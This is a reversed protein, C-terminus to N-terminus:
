EPEERKGARSLAAGADEFDPSRAHSGPSSVKERWSLCGQVVNRGRGLYMVASGLGAISPNVDYAALKGVYRDPRDLGEREWGPVARGSM